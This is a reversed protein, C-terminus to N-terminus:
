VNTFSSYSVNLGPVGILVAPVKVQSTPALSLGCGWSCEKIHGTELVSVESQVSSHGSRGEQTCLVCRSSVALSVFNREDSARSLERTLLSVICLFSGVPM